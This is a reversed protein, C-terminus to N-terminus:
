GGAPSSDSAEFDRGPGTLANGAESVYNGRLLKLTDRHARGAQSM